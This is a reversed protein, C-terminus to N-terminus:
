LIASLPVFARVPTGNLAEPECQVYGWMGYQALMTVWEGRPLEFLRAPSAASPEDTLFTDEEIMAAFADFFSLQPEEPADIAAAEIWGVAGMEEPTGCAVMAWCDYQGFYVYPESLDITMEDHRYSGQTPGCYLAAPVPHGAEGERAIPVLTTIDLTEAMISLTPMAICILASLLCFIRKM